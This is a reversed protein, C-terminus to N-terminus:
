VGTEVSLKVALLAAWAEATTPDLFGKQTFCRAAVVNGSHDRIVVGHGYTWEKRGGCCRLQSLWGLLPEEWRREWEEPDDKAVAGKSNINKFEEMAKKTATAVESTQTFCGDHIWRNRRFRIRRTTEAFICFIDEEGNLLFEESIQMFDWYQRGNKQFIMEGVSWVDKASPCEWLIHRVSEKEIECVLCM